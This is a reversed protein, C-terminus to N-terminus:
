LFSIEAVVEKIVGNLRVRVLLCDVVLGAALARFIADCHIRKIHAVQNGNHLVEVACPDHPNDPNPRLELETGAPLTRFAESHAYNQIGALDTFFITGSVPEIVPVLEYMDTPLRGFTLGLISFDDMAPSAGWGALLKEIDSRERGPLRSAFASMAQGNYAKALDSMGPYGTFGEAVASALDPGDYRFSYESSMRRLTGVVRRAMHPAPRWILMLSDFKPLNRM